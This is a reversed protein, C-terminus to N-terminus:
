WVIRTSAMLMGVSYGPNGTAEQAYTGTPNGSTMSRRTAISAVSM